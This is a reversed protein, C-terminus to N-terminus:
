DRAALVRDIVRYGEESYGEVFKMGFDAVFTDYTTEPKTRCFGCLIEKVGNSFGVRPYETVIRDWIEQNLVGGPSGKPGSFDTAIGYICAQVEIEKHRAISGTTHLAVADWALQLRHKDWEEPKGERVLFDRTANASDVEFRKDNSILETNKSWGLDHLIAAIAHLENDRGQLHPIQDAIYAGFLWSRVVHNYALTSTNSHAFELAKTILPTDPVTVGAIIKTSVRPM